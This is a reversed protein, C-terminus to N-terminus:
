TFKEPTPKRSFSIWTAAFAKTPSFDGAESPTAAVLFASPQLAANM